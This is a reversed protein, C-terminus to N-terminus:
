EHGALQFGSSFANLRFGKQGAYSKLTNYYDTLFGEGLRQKVEDPTLLRPGDMYLSLYPPPNVETAMCKTGIALAAEDMTQDAARSALHTAGPLMVAARVSGALAGAQKLTPETAKAAAVDNCHVAADSVMATSRDYASKVFAEGTSQDSSIAAIVRAVSSYDGKAVDGVPGFGNASVPDGVMAALYPTLAAAYASVLKPNLSGMSSQQMGLFGHSIASLEQQKDSLFTALAHATEGARTAPAPDPSAADRAIWGFAEGAKAGQDDWSYTSLETLTSSGGQGTLLDHMQTPDSPPLSPASASCSVLVLGAFAASVVAKM